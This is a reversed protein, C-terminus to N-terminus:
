SNLLEAIFGSHAQSQVPPCNQNVAPPPPADKYPHQVALLQLTPCLYLQILTFVRVHSKLSLPQTFLSDILSM